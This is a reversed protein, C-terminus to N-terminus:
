LCISGEVENGFVDWGQTQSRAFLEIRPLDGLLRVIEGRIEDPKRSHERVKHIQLNRVGADIRKIVGKTALLCIEPNARTWYGLGMHYKDNKTTKVWTFAVTRYTFGWRSITVFAEQLLPYTAWMFLACNENALSSVPLNYIDDDSMCVYHNQPAKKGQKGWAKFNWPPDAYIISYTM